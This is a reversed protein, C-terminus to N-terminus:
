DCFSFQTTSPTWTWGNWDDVLSGDTEQSFVIEAPLDGPGWTVSITGATETYNGANVIDTVLAFARGDPCLELDATCNFLPDNPCNEPEYFAYEFYRGASSSADINNAADATSGTDTDGCALMFSAAVLLCLPRM